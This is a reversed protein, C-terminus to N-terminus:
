ASACNKKLEGIAEEEGPNLGIVTCSTSLYKAVVGDAKSLETYEKMHSQTLIGVASQSQQKNIEIKATACNM